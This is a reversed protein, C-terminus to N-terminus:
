HTKWFSPYFLVLLTFYELRGLLMLMTLFIKGFDSFKGYTQTPGVVGLGPGINNISAIVATASDRLPESQEAHDWLSEPQIALFFIWSGAFVLFVIAIYVVVDHRVEPDLVQHGLRLPRVVQPRFAHFVELLLIRALLMWRLVKVGGGTSGVSGGVFMLLILIAKPFAPWLNFDDTAYGTTTMISAVHFLSRVLVPEDTGQNNSNAQWLLSGIGLTCSLLIFLYVQYERNSLVTKWQQKWLLYFLTYNTGGLIMFFIITTRIYPSEFAGISANRTSFGGTALTGFAHCLADFVTMGSLKLLTFCGLNLGVYIIWLIRATQAIRPQLTDRALGSVERQFLLKAGGLHGLLAVFLVVIGMGGLFHTFSRWFLICRPIAPKGTQPMEVDSLVSSGTTTLGSMSEFIADAVSMPIEPARQTQSIYFPIAGLLGALIWGLGVVALAERRYIPGQANKGSFTLIIGIIASIFIGSLLGRLGEAEIESTQGFQPFAWPVSVLMAAAVLLAIIGLQKRLLKWNM